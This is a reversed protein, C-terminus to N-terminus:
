LTVDLLTPLHDSAEALREVPVRDSSTVAHAARVRVDETTLVADIRRVPGSAPFTHETQAAPDSLLPELAQRAAGDATENLDGGIIAPAGAGRVLEALQAAHVLRNDEQLALHTSAVVAAGGGPVSLRVAAIGRPYTSNLDTIRQPVPQLRRRIVQAAVDDTTLVALGRGALGGLLVRRDIQRALWSLRTTPLVFRPSEQLLLVDPRLDQLTEVVAHLDGRLEWLNWAMIRLDWGGTEDM